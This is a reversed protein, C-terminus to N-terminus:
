DGYNRLRSVSGVNEQRQYIRWPIPVVSQSDRATFGQGGLRRAPTGLAEYTLHFLDMRTTSALSLGVLMLLGYDHENCQYRKM